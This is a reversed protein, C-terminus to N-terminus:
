SENWIEQWCHQWASQSQLLRPAACMRALEDAIWRRLQFASTSSMMSPSNPHNPIAPLLSIPAASDDRVTAVTVTCTALIGQQVPHCHLVAACAPCILKPRTLQEEPHAPESWTSKGGRLNALLCFYQQVHLSIINRNLYLIYIILKPRCSWLCPRSKIWGLTCWVKTATTM